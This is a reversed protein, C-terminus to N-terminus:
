RWSAASWRRSRLLNRVLAGLGVLAGIAAMLKVDGAGMARLAYLARLDSFGVLLGVMSFLIGAEPPGILANMALGLVVGTVTIWNPIRRYMIDFLAAALLIAFLVMVVKQPPITFLNM